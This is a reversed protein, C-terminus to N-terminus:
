YLGNWFKFRLKENVDVQIVVGKIVVKRYIEELRCSWSM